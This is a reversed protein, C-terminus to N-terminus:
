SWAIEASGRHRIPLWTPATFGTGRWHMDTRLAQQRVRGWAPIAADVLRRSCKGTDDGLRGPVASSGFRFQFRTLLGEARILM